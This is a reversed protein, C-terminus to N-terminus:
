FGLMAFLNSNEPPGNKLKRKRKKKRERAYAHM